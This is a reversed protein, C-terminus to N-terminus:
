DVSDGGERSQDVITFSFTTGIGAESECRIRGGHRRVITDVYPLGMGEGPQDQPGARRFPAFVKDMDADAIGRGNDRVHFTTVNGEREGWVEIEGPRDTALYKAANNLLNGLVQEMSTRDAVVVPLPGITVETDRAGIEHALGDLVRRALGEMDIHEPELVRRGLRSLRLVADIFADMRGVSSEIFGLAEPVDEELAYRLRRRQVDDLHVQAVGLVSQIEEVALRLEASFGKLNVLPARLDHSVIYAFQKIEENARELENAYRALREEARKIDSIDTYVAVAGICEDEQYIPAASLLVDVPSGSKHHRVTEAHSVPQLALASKTYGRAEEYTDADTILRDLDGGIAEASRYGFLREAAANWATIRRDAGLTVVADPAADLVAQLFLRREENLQEARQREAVQRALKANVASLEATRRAVLAELDRWAQERAEQVLTRATLDMQVCAGLVVSSDADRLPFESAMVRIKTGDARLDEFELGEFRGGAFVAAVLEETRQAYREQVMLDYMRKGVAEEATWGYVETCARNWDVITGDRTFTWCCAPM